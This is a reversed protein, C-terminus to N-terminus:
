CMKLRAGLNIILTNVNANKTNDSHADNIIDYFALLRKHGIERGLARARAKDTFFLPQGKDCNRMIIMDRIGLMLEELASQLEDRKTPLESLRGYLVSYGVKPSLAEIIGMIRGYEESTEESQRRDTLRLAKGIVGDSLRMLIGFRDPDSRLLAAAESSKEVVLDSLEKDTFRSMPIYQARSKITTLIKDTGSALLMIIVNKPPEELVILLSNQAEPTLREADRIIYIKYDSETATMYMDNRFAKIDNVGLTAKDRDRELIKVDVFGNEGIRRCNNCNGCPLPSNGDDRAECNLASSILKAYTLKGSGQPGDILFAHPVRGSAILAGIRSKSGDNGFLTPFYSKMM